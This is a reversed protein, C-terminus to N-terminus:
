NSLSRSCSKAKELALDIDSSRLTANEATEILEFLSRLEPLITKLLLEAGSKRELVFLRRLDRSIFSQLKLLKLYQRFTVRRETRLSKVEVSLQDLLWRLVSYNEISRKFQPDEDEMSVRMPSWDAQSFSLVSPWLQRNKVISRILSDGREFWVSGRIQEQSVGLIDLVGDTGVRKASSRTLRLRLYDQLALAIGKPTKGLKKYWPKQDLDAFAYNCFQSVPAMATGIVAFYGLQLHTCAMGVPAGLILHELTETTVFWPPYTATVVILYLLGYEQYGTYSMAAIEEPLEKVVGALAKALEVGVKLGQRITKPRAEWREKTWNLFRERLTKRALRTEADFTESLEPYNEILVKSVLSYLQGEETRGDTLSQMELLLSEVIEDRKAGDSSGHAFLNSSFLSGAILAFVFTITTKM